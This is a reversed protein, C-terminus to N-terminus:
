HEQKHLNVSEILKSTQRQLTEWKKEKVLDEGLLQVGVGFSQCGANILDQVMEIKVGGCALLEVNNLPGKLQKIYDPGLFNIPFIKIIDGGSEVATQVETPTMAGPISVLDLEKSRRIIKSNTNPSIIYKAGAKHASEVQDVSLVTGAGIYTDSNLESHLLEITDITNNSNMTVEFFRIGAEYLVQSVELCETPDLGRYIIIIRQQKIAQLVSKSTGHNLM